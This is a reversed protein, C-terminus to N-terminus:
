LTKCIHCFCFFHTAGYDFLTYALSSFLPIIGTVVGADVDKTKANDPTLAFVRAQVFKQQNGRGHIRGISTKGM